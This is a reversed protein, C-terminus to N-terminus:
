PTACIVYVTFTRPPTENTWEIRGIWGTAQDSEDDVKNGQANVPASLEVTPDPGPGSADGDGAVGGGLARGNAPTATDCQVVRNADEPVDSEFRV